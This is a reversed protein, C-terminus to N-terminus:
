VGLKMVHWKEVRMDSVLPASRTQDICSDSTAAPPNRIETECFVLAAEVTQKHM